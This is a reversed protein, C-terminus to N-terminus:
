KVRDSNNNDVENVFIDLDINGRSRRCGLLAARLTEISLPLLLAIGVRKLRRGKLDLLVAEAGDQHLAGGGAGGDARWPLRPPPSGGRCSSAGLGEARDLVEDLMFAEPLAEFLDIAEESIVFRQRAPGPDAGASAESVEGCGGDVQGTLLEALLENEERLRLLGERLRENEAEIEERSRFPNGGQPQRSLLDDHDFIDDM